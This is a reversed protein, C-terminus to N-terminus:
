GWRKSGMVGDGRVSTLGEKKKSPSGAKRTTTCIGMWEQGQNAILQGGRATEGVGLCGM